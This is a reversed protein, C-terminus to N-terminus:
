TATFGCSAIASRLAEESTLHEDFGIIVKADPYSAVADFVGPQRSLIVELGTACTVCTFGKINYVVTRRNHPISLKLGTSAIGIGATAGAIVGGVQRFFGRRDM